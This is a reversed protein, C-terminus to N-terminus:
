VRRGWWRRVLLYSGRAKGRVVTMAFFATDYYGKVVWLSAGMEGYVEGRLGWSWRRKREGNEWSSSYAVAIFM